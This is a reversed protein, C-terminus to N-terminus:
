VLEIRFRMPGIHIEDRPTVAVATIRHGNVFTGNTSGLDKIGVGKATRWIEAHRRSVLSDSVVVDADGTRGVILPTAGIKWSQGDDSILRPQSEGRVFSTRVELDGGALEDDIFIEVSVPGAFNYNESLAHQRIAEALEDILAQHFGDFRAGDDESLWVKAKNPSILGQSTVRRNLDIERIIKQAIEIPQLSNRFPRSLGRNFLNELRSEIDRLAM